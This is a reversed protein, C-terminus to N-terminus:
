LLNFLIAGGPTRFTTDAGYQTSVGTTVYARYHYLTGPLLVNGTDVTFAGLVTSTATKSSATTPNETLAWCVGATSVVGNGNSTINGGLTARIPTMNTVAGTTVAPDADTTFTADAGYQTSNETIVYARYHYLTNKTLGTAGVSIADSGTTAKSNATTPNAGTAWCVGRETVTGGGYDTVTGALTATIHTINTAGGTTVAPPTTWTIVLYTKEKDAVTASEMFNEAALNGPVDSNGNYDHGMRCGILTTGAKTIGAVALSVTAWANVDGGGRYTYYNALEGLYGGQYYAQNYGYRNAHLETVKVFHLNPDSNQENHETNRYWYMTVASVTAGAPISSTDFAMISRDIEFDVINDRRANRGRATASTDCTPSGNAETAERTATWGNTWRRYYTYITGITINTSSM